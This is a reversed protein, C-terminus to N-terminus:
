GKGHLLATRFTVTEGDTTTLDPLGLTSFLPADRSVKGIGADENVILRLSTKAEGAKNIAICTYRADDAASLKTFKLTACEGDYSMTIGHGPILPVRDKMWQIAPAPHAQVSCEVTLPEGVTSEIKGPLVEIYQPAVVTKHRRKQSPSTRPVVEVESSAMAIGQLNTATCNYFGQDSETVHHIDLYYFDGDNYISYKIGTELLIGNKDWIVDAMPNASLAAKLRLSRDEKVAKKHHPKVIFKPPCVHINRSEVSERVEKM